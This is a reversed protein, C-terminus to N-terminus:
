FELICLLNLTFHYFTLIEPYM